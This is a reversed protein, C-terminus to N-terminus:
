LARVRTWRSPDLLDATLAFRFRAGNELGWFNGAGNRTVEWAGADDGVRAFTDGIAVPHQEPRM